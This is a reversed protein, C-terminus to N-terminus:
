SKKPTSVRLRARLQPDRAAEFLLFWLDEAPGHEFYDGCRWWGRPQEEFPWDRPGTMTM